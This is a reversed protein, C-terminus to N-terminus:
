AEKYYEQSTKNQSAVVDYYFQERIRRGMFWTRKRTPILSCFFFFLNTAGPLWQQQFKIPHM